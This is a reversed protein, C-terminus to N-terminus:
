QVYRKRRAEGRREEEEEREEKKKKKPPPPACGPPAGAQIRAQYICEFLFDSHLDLTVYGVNCLSSIFYSYKVSRICIIINLKYM